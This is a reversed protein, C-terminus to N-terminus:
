GGGPKFGPRMGQRSEAVDIGRGLLETTLHKAIDPRGRVTLSFNEDEGWVNELNVMGSSEKVDAWPHVEMDEYAFVTYPPIM